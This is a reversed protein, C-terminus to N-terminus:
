VLSLVVLLRGVLSGDVLCGRRVALHCCLRNGFLRQDRRGLLDATPRVELTLTCPAQRRWSGHAGPTPAHPRARRPTRRDHSGLRLLLRRFGAHVDRRLRETGQLSRHWCMSF